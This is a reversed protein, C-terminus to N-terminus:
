ENKVKALQLRVEVKSTMDKPTMEEDLIKTVQYAIGDPWKNSALKDIKNMTVEKTFACTLASIAQANWDHYKAKKKWTETTENVTADINSPLFNKAEEMLVLCYQKMLANVMFRKWWLAYSTQKGDWTPSNISKTSKSQLM